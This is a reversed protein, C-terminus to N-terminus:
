TLSTSKRSPFGRRRRPLGAERRINIVTATSVHFVGAIDRYFMEPHGAIYDAILRHRQAIEAHYSGRKNRKRKM